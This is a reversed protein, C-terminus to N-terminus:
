DTIPPPAPSLIRQAFTFSEFVMGRTGGLFMCGISLWSKLRQCVEQGWCSSLPWLVNSFGLGQLCTQQFADVEEPFDLGWQHRTM